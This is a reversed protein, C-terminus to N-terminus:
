EAATAWIEIIIIIIIITLPTAQLSSASHMWIFSLTEEYCIFTHILLQQCNNSVTSSTEVAVLHDFYVFRNKYTYAFCLVFKSKHWTNALHNLGQNVEVTSFYSDFVSLSSVLRAANFKYKYLSIDVDTSHTDYTPGCKHNKTFHRSLSLFKTRVHM